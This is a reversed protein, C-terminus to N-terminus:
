AWEWVDYGNKEVGVATGFASTTELGILQQSRMGSESWVTVVISGPISVAGGKGVLGVRVM